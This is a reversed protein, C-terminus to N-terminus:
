AGTTRAQREKLDTKNVAHKRGQWSTNYGPAKEVIRKLRKVEKRGMESTFSITRARKYRAQWKRVRYVHRSQLWTKCHSLIVADRIAM